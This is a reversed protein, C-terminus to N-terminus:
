KPRRGPRSPRAGRKGSCHTARTQAIRGLRTRLRPKEKKLRAGCKRKLRQRPTRGMPASPMGPLVKIRERLEETVDGPQYVVKMDSETAVLRGDRSFAAGTVHGTHGRYIVPRSRRVDWVKVVYYTMSPGTYGSIPVTTGNGVSSPGSVAVAAYVYKKADDYALAVVNAENCVWQEAGWVGGSYTRKFIQLNTAYFMVDAGLALFWGFLDGPGANSARLHAQQTWRGGSRAFVYVAGIRAVDEWPAGVALTQGDASLAM